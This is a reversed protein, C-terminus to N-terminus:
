QDVECQCILYDRRNHRFRHVRRRVVAPRTRKKLANYVTNIASDMSDAELLVNPKASGDVHLAYKM